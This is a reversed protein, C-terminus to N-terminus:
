ANFSESMLIHLKQTLCKKLSENFNFANISFLLIARFLVYRKIEMKKLHM